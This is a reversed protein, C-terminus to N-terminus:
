GPKFKSTGALGAELVDLLKKIDKLQEGLRYAPGMAKNLEEVKAMLQYMSKINGDVEDCTKCVGDRYTEVTEVTLASVSRLVDSLNEVLDDVSTALHRADNEIDLLVSPDLPSLRARLLLDRSLVDEEPPQQHPQQHPQQQHRQRRPSKSPSSPLSSRSPLGSGHQEQWRISDQVLKSTLYSTTDAATCDRPLVAAAAADVGDEVSGGGGDLELQHAEELAARAQEPPLSDFIEHYSNTMSDAGSLGGSREVDAAGAQFVPLAAAKAKEQRSLDFSSSSTSSVRDDESGSSSSDRGLLTAPGKRAKPRAGGGKRADDDVFDKQEVVPTDDESLDAKSLATKPPAFSEVTNRSRAPDTAPLASFAAIVGTVLAIEPPKEPSKPPNLPASVLASPKM